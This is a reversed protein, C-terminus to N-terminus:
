RLGASWPHDAECHGDADKELLVKRFESRGDRRTVDYLVVSDSSIRGENVERLIQLFLHPSHTEAIVHVGKDRAVDVFVTALRRAAGEHLHLEPQEFLLTSDKPAFSCQVLVPLVQSVGYGLDPISLKSGDDLTLSVDFLDTKAVADIRLRQGLGMNSIWESVQSLNPHKKTSRLYENALMAVASEGASGVETPLAGRTAYRRLPGQRFPGLYLTRQLERNLSANVNETLLFSDMLEEKPKSGKKFSLAPRFSLRSSLVGQFPLQTGNKEIIYDSEKRAMKKFYYVDDGLTMQATDVYIEQTVPRAKFSFEVNLDRAPATYDKHPFMIKKIKNLGVGITFADKVSRSHVVDLFRGLHVQAYEDDLV